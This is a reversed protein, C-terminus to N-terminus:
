QKMSFSQQGIMTGDAFIYVNYTGAPLYEEVDWYVTVTQEEGSYEIDDWIYTGEEATREACDESQNELVAADGRDAKIDTEPCKCSYKDGYEAERLEHVIEEILRKDVRGAYLGFWKFDEYDQKNYPMCSPRKGHNDGNRDICDETHKCESEESM